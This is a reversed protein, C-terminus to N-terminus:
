ISYFWRFGIPLRYRNMQGNNSILYEFYIAPPMAPVFVFVSIRFKIKLTKKQGYHQACLAADVYETSSIWFM